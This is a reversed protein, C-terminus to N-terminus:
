RGLSMTTLIIDSADRKSLGARENWLDAARNADEYSPYTYSTPTYGKIDRDAYGLAYGETTVVAVAARTATDTNTM